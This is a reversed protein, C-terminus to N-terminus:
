VILSDTYQETSQNAPHPCCRCVPQKYSRPHAFPYLPTPNRSPDRRPQEARMVRLPIATDSSQKDPNQLERRVEALAASFEEKVKKLEEKHSADRRRIETRLKTLEELLKATNIEESETASDELSPADHQTGPRGQSKRRQQSRRNRQVTKKKKSRPMIIPRNLPANQDQCDRHRTKRKTATLPNLPERRPGDWQSAAWLCERVTCHKRSSTV